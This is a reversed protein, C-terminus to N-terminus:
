NAMLTSFHSVFNIGKKSFCRFHIASNDICIINNYWLFQSLIASPIDPECALNRSWATIIEKFYKPFTKVYNSDIQLNSHFKFDNGLYKNIFGLTIIKWKHMNNDFLRKIWCCQRSIIKAKINVNKLGGDQYSSSLTLNKIKPKSNSWIFNKQIKTLEEITTNPIPKVLALHIIKSLALCKFVTIKGELNLSRSRWLKLM